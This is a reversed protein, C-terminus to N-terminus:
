AKFAALVRAFLGVREAPRNEPLAPTEPQPSPAVPAPPALRESLRRHASSEVDLRKRLDEITESMAQREREGMVLQARVVALETALDPTELPKRKHTELTPLPPKGNGRPRTADLWRQLEAPDISWSGDPLKEGSMKGTTLAKSIAGKNKGTADAAQNLSLKM